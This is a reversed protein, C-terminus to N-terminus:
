AAHRRRHVHVLAAFGKGDRSPGCEVVEGDLSIPLGRYSLCELEIRIADGPALGRNLRLAIDGHGLNKASALGQIYDGQSYTVRGEFRTKLARRVLWAQLERDDDLVDLTQVNEEVNSLM